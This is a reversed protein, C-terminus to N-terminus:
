TVLRLCGSRRGARTASSAACPRLALMRSSNSALALASVVRVARARDACAAATRREVSCENPWGAVKAIRGTSALRERVAAVARRVVLAELEDAVGHQVADDRAGRRASERSGFAVQRTRAGAEDVAVRQRADRASSRPSASREAFALDRLPPCRGRTWGRRHARLTNPATNMSPPKSAARVTMSVAYASMRRSASGCHEALIGLRAAPIAAPACSATGLVGHHRGRAFRVRLQEVDFAANRARRRSWRLPALRRPPALLLARRASRVSAGVPARRTAIVPWASESRSRRSRRAPRRDALRRQEIREDAARMLMVDRLGCVVRWRMVADQRARVRLEHEDVRGSELRPV